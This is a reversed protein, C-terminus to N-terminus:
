MFWREVCNFPREEVYRSMIRGKRKRASAEQADVSGRSATVLWAERVGDESSLILSVRLKNSDPGYAVFQITM